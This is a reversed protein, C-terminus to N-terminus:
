DEVKVSNLDQKLISVITAWFTSKSTKKEVEAMSKAFLYAERVNEPMKKEEVEIRKKM